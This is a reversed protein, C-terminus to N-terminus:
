VGTCTFRWIRTGVLTDAYDRASVANSTPCVARHETAIGRAREPSTPPAAVTLEISDSGLCVLTAGFRAEWSRLVASVAAPDRSMGPWGTLAPVDAPSEAPVLALRYGRAALLSGTNGAEAHADFRRNSRRALGPFPTDGDTHRASARHWWQALLGAADLADVRLSSSRELRQRADIWGGRPGAPVLVPWLGTNRHAAVCTLYRAPETLPEDTVWIDDHWRGAPLALDALDLEVVRSSPSRSPRPTTVTM